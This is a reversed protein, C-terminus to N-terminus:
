FIDRIRVEIDLPIMNNEQLSPTVIELIEIKPIISYHIVYHHLIKILDVPHSPTLYTLPDRTHTVFSLNLSSILPYFLHTRSVACYVRQDREKFDITRIM